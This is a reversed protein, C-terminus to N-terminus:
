KSEYIKLVMLAISLLLISNSFNLFSLPKVPFTVFWGAQSFDIGFVKIVLGVVISVVALYILSKPISNM